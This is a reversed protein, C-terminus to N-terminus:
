IPFTTASRYALYRAPCFGSAMTLISLQECLPSLSRSATKAKVSAQIRCFRTGDEKASYIWLGPVIEKGQVIVEEDKMDKEMPLRVRRGPRSSYVLKGQDVILVDLAYQQSLDDLSSEDSGGEKRYINSIKQSAEVMAEKKMSYYYRDFGFGVAVMLTIIFFITFFGVYLGAKFKLSWRGKRM